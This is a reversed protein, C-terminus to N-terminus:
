FLDFAANPNNENIEGFRNGLQFKLFGWILHM